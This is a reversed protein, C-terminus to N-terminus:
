HIPWAIQAKQRDTRTPTGFVRSMTISMLQALEPDVKNVGTGRVIAFGLGHDLEHRAEFLADAVEPANNHLVDVLRDGVEDSTKNPDNKNQSLIQELERYAATLGEMKELEIAQIDDQRESSPELSENGSHNM